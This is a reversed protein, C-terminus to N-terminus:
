IIFKFFNVTPSLKHDKERNPYHGTIMQSYKEKIEDTAHVYNCHLHEIDLKESSEYSWLEVIDFGLVTSVLSLSNSIAKMASSNLYHNKIKNENM